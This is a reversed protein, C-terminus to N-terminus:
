MGRSFFDNFIEGMLMYFSGRHFLIIRIMSGNMGTDNHGCVTFRRANFRQNRADSPRQVFGAVGIFDDDDIVSGIVRGGFSRASSSGEDYRMGVIHSVAGGDLRADSLGGAGDDYHKVTVPLVPGFIYRTENLLEIRIVHNDTGPGTTGM